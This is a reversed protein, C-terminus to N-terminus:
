YIKYLKEKNDEALILKNICYSHQNHRLEELKVYINKSYLHSITYIKNKRLLSATGISICKVKSGIQIKEKKM